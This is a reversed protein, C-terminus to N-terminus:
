KNLEAFRRIVAAVEARTANGAPVFANNERGHMINKLTCYMVGEVAYDSIKDADAYELKIAWAGTPAIGKSKAYRLLIAAIQERTINDHPAFRTEDVGSAIDNQTAWIVAKEYYSNPEVDNFKTTADVSPMGEARYLATVFMARTVWADPDFSKQSTGTMIGNDSVYKVDEYFWHSENVDDFATGGADNGNTNDNNKDDDADGDAASQTWKAYLTISKTVKTSFDYEKTLEKDTFWGGFTCEDKVPAKPETARANKKVTQKEIPAAGNTEFAVTYRTSGGGGTPRNTISFTITPDQVDQGQACVMNTKLKVRGEFPATPTGSIKNNELTLGEPLAEGDALTIAANDSYVLRLTLPEIETGVYGTVTDDKLAFSWTAYLKWREETTSDYKIQTVKEDLTAGDNNQTSYWGNFDYGELALDSLTIPWGKVGTKTYTTPNTNAADLTNLYELSYAKSEWGAYYTKNNEFVTVQSADAPINDCAYRAEYWGKFVCDDCVPEAVTMKETGEVYAVTGYRVATDGDWNGGNPDFKPYESWIAYLHVTDTTVASDSGFEYREEGLIPIGDGSSSSKFADEEGNEEDSWWMFTHNAYQPKEEPRTLFLYTSTLDHRKTPDSEYTKIYGSVFQKKNATIHDQYHWVVWRGFVPYLTPYYYYGYNEVWDKLLKKMEVNCTGSSYYWGNFGYGEKTAEPLAKETETETNFTVSRNMGDLEFTVERALAAEAFGLLLSLTLIICMLQKQRKM